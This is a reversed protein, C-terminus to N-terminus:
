LREFLSYLAFLDKELNMGPEGGEPKDWGLAHALARIRADDNEDFFLVKFGAAEWQARSFPSRGDAWPIYPKDPPAQAPFLNYVLVRGGPKLAQHLAALFKEDSVGLNILKRPDAEREPHIYGRKLVNKSIILDYKEGVAAAVKADAPFQGDYLTVKGKAKGVSGQDGKEAYLARLMPDVDVGRADAGLLALMRLHSVYGYGFDLIKKGAVDKLGNPARALIELPRAYSIPSGYRTTYYHQEDAVFATLAAQENKPLKAKEAETWYKTKQADHYLTRKPMAPLEAATSLFRRVLPEDITASITKAEERITELATPAPKPAAPDPAAILTLVFLLARM